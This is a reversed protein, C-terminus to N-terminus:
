ILPWPVVRGPGPEPFCGNDLLIRLRRRLAAVEGTSLLRELARSLHTSEVLARTLEQLDTRITPPLPLGAFDWIVTRLKPDPHFSLANDIAWLRGEHDILCHGAKRDANNTVADFAALRQLDERYAEDDQIDFFHIGEQAHIFLQVSGLGHPGRRLATPPVFGWGLTKSVLYAAVERRGLTGHAFDWLPREGRQPKYIALASLDDDHVTVLLTANSSWPILGEVKIEGRSLLRLAQEPAVTTARNQRDSVYSPREKAPM